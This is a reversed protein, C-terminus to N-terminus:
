NDDNPRDRLWSRCEAEIRTATMEASAEGRRSAIVRLLKGVMLALGVEFHRPGDHDRPVDLKMINHAATFFWM